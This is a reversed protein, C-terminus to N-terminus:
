SDEGRMRPHDQGAFEADRAHTRRGRAHPPSGWEPSGGLSWTPDEGRMRPHDLRDSDGLSPPRTKGACAPTIRRLGSRTRTLPPRGRAHPPSGRRSVTGTILLFDEGRM